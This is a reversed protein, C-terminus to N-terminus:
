KRKMGKMVLDSLEPRTMKNAAETHTSTVGQAM